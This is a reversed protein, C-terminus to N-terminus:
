FDYLPRLITTILTKRAIKAQHYSSGSPGFVYPDEVSNKGIHILFPADYESNLTAKLTCIKM